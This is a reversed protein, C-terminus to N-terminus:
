DVQKLIFPATLTKKYTLVSLLFSLHEKPILPTRQPDHNPYQTRIIKNKKGDECLINLFDKVNEFSTNESTEFHQKFHEILIKLVM